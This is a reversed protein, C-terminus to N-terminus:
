LVSSYAFAYMVVSITNSFVTTFVPQQVTDHEIIAAARRRFHIKGKRCSGNQHLFSLKRKYVKHKLSEISFVTATYRSSPFTSPLM